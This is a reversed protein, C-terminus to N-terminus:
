LNSMREEGGCGHAKPPDWSSPCVVLRLCDSSWTVRAESTTRSLYTDWKSGIAHLLSNRQSDQPLFESNKSFSHPSQLWRRVCLRISSDAWGLHCLWSTSLLLTRVVDNQTKVRTLVLAPRSRQCVAMQSTGQGWAIGVMLSFFWINVKKTKGSVLMAM